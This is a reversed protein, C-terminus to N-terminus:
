RFKLRQRMPHKVCLPTNLISQNYFQNCLKHSIQSVFRKLRILGHNSLTTICYAHASSPNILSLLNTEHLVLPNQLKNKILIRVDWIVGEYSVEQIKTVPDLSGRIKSASYNAYLSFEWQYQNTPTNPIHQKVTCWFHKDSMSRNSITRPHTGTSWEKLELYNLKVSM